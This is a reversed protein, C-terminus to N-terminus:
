GRNNTDLPCTWAYQLKPTYGKNITHTSHIQAGTTIPTDQQTTLNRIGIYLNMFHSSIRKFLNEKCMLTPTNNHIQQRAHGAEDQPQNTKQIRFIDIMLRSSQCTGYNHPYFKNFYWKPTKFGRSLVNLQFYRLHHEELLLTTVTLEIYPPKITFNPFTICSNCM